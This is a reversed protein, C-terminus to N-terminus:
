DPLNRTGEDNNGAVKFSSSENVNQQSRCEVTTQNRAFARSANVQLTSTFNSNVGIGAISTLTAIFPNSIQPVTSSASFIIPFILPSDWQLTISGVVHCTFTVMEGECAFRRGNVDVTSTLMVNAAFMTVEPYSIPVLLARTYAPVSGIPMKNNQHANISFALMVTAM